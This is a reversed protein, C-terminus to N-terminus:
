KSKRKRKIKYSNKGYSGGDKGNIDQMLKLYKEHLADSQKQGNLYFSEETIKVSFNDGQEILQDKTLMDALAEETERYKRVCNEAEAFAQRIKVQKETLLKQQHKLVKEQIRLTKELNKELAKQLVEMKMQQHLLMRNELNRMQHEFDQMNFRLTDMMAEPYELPIDPLKITPFKFQYVSDIWIPTDIFNQFTNNHDNWNWDSYADGWNWRFGSFADALNKYLMASANKYARLGEKIGPAPVPHQQHQTLAEELSQISHEQRALAEDKEALQQELERIREEKVLSERDARIEKEYLHYNRKPVKEGHDFIKSVEGEKDRVIVVHKRLPTDVPLNSEQQINNAEHLPIIGVKEVGASEALPLRWDAFVVATLLLSGLIFLGSGWHRRSPRGNPETVRKIRHWLSSKHHGLGLALNPHGLKLAALNALAKALALPDIGQRIALDDCCYEREERIIRNIWWVAPHYFFLIELISQFINVVFDYRKIHALEHILIAEIQEPSLATFSQVPILIMPKFFGITMPVKALGSAVLRVPKSLSIQHQLLQVKDQWISPAPNINVRTLRYTFLLGGAFRLSFLLIGAMWTYVTIPLLYAMPSAPSAPSINTVFNQWVMTTIERSNDAAASGAPSVELYIVWFTVFTATVMGLLGWVGTAYRHSAGLNKFSKFIILLIIAILAGQWISHFITWGIAEILPSSSLNNLYSM